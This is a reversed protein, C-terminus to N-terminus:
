INVRRPESLTVVNKKCCIVKRVEMGESWGGSTQTLRIRRNEMQEPKWDGFRREKEKKIEKRNRCM